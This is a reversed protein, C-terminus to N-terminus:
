RDITSQAGYPPAEGEEPVSANLVIALLAALHYGEPGFEIKQSTVGAVFLTSGTEGRFFRTEGHVQGTAELYRRVAEGPAGRLADFLEKRAKEVHEEPM